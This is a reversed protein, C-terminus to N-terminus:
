RLAASLERLAAHLRPATEPGMSNVEGYPPKPSGYLYPPKRDWESRPVIYGIEDNALGLVFKVRGPLFARLPPVEVPEVLLPGQSRPNNVLTAVPWAVLEREAPRLMAQLEDPAAARDLWRQWAGDALVVPMRDHIPAMLENPTTTVVACSVLELGTSRDVWRSWIGAFALPRGDAGSIYFPQTRGETRRWEYFGDVPVVCRKSRFSGRFAPSTAVTEARAHIPRPRRWDRPDPFGWRMPVVRRQKAEAGWMIVPLQSAVRYTAIEDGGGDGDRQKASGDTFMAGYEYIQRWSVMATFKGCM